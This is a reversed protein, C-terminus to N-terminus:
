VTGDLLLLLLNMKLQFGFRVAQLFLYLLTIAQGTNYLGNSALGVAGEPEDINSQHWVVWVMVM